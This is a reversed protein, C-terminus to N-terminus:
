VSECFLSLLHVYHYLATGNTTRVGPPWDLFKQIHRQINLHPQYKRMEIFMLSLTVCFYYLYLPGTVKRGLPIKSYFHNHYVYHIKMSIDSNPPMRKKDPPFYDKM